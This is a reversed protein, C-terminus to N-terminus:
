KPATFSIRLSSGTIRSRREPCITSMLEIPTCVLVGRKEDYTADFAARSAKERQTAESITASPTAIVVIWLGSTRVGIILGVFIYSRKGVMVGSSAASMIQSAIM